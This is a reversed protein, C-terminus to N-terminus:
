VRHREVEVRVAFLRGSDAAAARADHRLRRRARPLPQRAARAARGRRAVAGIAGGYLALQQQLVGRLDGSGVSYRIGALEVARANEAVARALIPTATARRSKAPSRTRSRASRASRSADRLRGDGAGARRHPRRRERPARRGPLAARRSQRRPEVGSQEPEQLVFLESTLNSVGATLAIRPLQAVKAQEVCNFAAAVRREAAIVDPRRELLESPLGAPVPPPMPAFRPPADLAAAPYRGLLAELARLSQVYASSPRGCRTACSRPERGRGRSTSTAAASVSGIRRSASSASATSRGGRARARAAAASRERPVLEEGGARRDVARAYYYDARHRRAARDAAAEGYRVRGWLDLEWSASILWARCGSGDGGLKGGGRASFTWRPSSRRGPLACIAPRRRSARAPSACTPTTNCRKPSSRTSSGSRRVDGALRERRRRCAARRGDVAGAAGRQAAGARRTDDVRPPTKLACGPSRPPSSSRALAARKM